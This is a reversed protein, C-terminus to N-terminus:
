GNIEGIYKNIIKEIIMFDEIDDIEYNQWREIEYSLTKELYFTKNKKYSEIKSLYIVGYPFYAKDAQQRQYISKANSIYPSVFGEFDMKKIIFPHETHIEGVSVLCDANENNIIKKISLDIDNMKRLPSTPELLAIYDFREGLKEFCDLAHIIAESSPSSDRAFEEPRLFPVNCGFKEAIGAIEESDTSVFIRDIYKSQLAKEITWAILPKGNLQLINKKPLGKSGGRAPIISIIKKGNFM